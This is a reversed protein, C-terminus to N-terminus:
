VPYAAVVIVEEVVRLRALVPGGGCGPSAVRCVGQALRELLRIQGLEQLLGCYGVFGSGSDVRMQEEKRQGDVVLLHGAVLGIIEDGGLPLAYGAEEGPELLAYLSSVGLHDRLLGRGGAIRRDMHDEVQLGGELDPPMMLAAGVTGVRGIRVRPGDEPLELVEVVPVGPAREPAHSEHVDIREGPVAHPHLPVGVGDVVDRLVYGFGQVELAYRVNVFALPDRIEGHLEAGPYPRYEVAQDPVRM